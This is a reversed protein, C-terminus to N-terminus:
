DKINLCRDSMVALEKDHTVTVITQSYKDRLLLSQYRRKTNTDLNRLNMPLIVSPRNIFARAVAVRQQEGRETGFTQAHAERRAGALGSARQERERKKM